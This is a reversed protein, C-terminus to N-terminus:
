EEWSQKQLLTNFTVDGDTEGLFFQPGIMFCSEEPM